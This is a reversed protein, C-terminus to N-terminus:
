QWFMEPIEDDELMDSLNKDDLNMIQDAVEQLEKETLITRKAM